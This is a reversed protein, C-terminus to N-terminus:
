RLRERLGRLWLRASMSRGDGPRMPNTLSGADTPRSLAAGSMSTQEWCNFRNIIAKWRCSGFIVLASLGSSLYDRLWSARRNIPERRDPWQLHGQHYRRGRTHHIAVGGGGAEGLHLVAVSGHHHWQRHGFHQNPEVVRSIRSGREFAFYAPLPAWAAGQIISLSGPATGYSPLGPQEASRRPSLAVM